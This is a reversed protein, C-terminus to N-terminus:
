SEGRTVTVSAHGRMWAARFASRWTKASERAYPCTSETRGAEAAAAGHVYASRFGVSRPYLRAARAQASM